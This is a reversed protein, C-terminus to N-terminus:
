FGATKLLNSCPGFLGNRWCVRLYRSAGPVKSPVLRLQNLSGGPNSTIRNALLWSDFDAVCHVNNNIAEGMVKLAFGVTLNKEICCTLDKLTKLISLPYPTPGSGFASICANRYRLTNRTGAFSISYPFLDLLLFGERACAKLFDLKTPFLVGPFLTTQIVGTYSTGGVGPKGKVTWPSSPNYFYNAKTFPPAEAILIKKILPKCNKNRKSEDFARQIDEFSIEFPYEGEGNMICMFYLYRMYHIHYENLYDPLTPVMRGNFFGGPLRSPFNYDAATIM